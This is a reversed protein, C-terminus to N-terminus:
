RAGAVPRTVMAYALTGQVTPAGDVSAEVEFHWFSEFERVLRAELAIRDGAFVPKVFKVHTSALLGVRGARSRDLEADLPVDDGPRYGPDLRDRRDMNRLAELAVAEDRGAAAFGRVLLLVATLLGCSQALSELMLTGPMVPMGVYHGQLVPDNASVAREAHLTPEPASAFGVVRDVMLYPARLATLRSMVAPGFRLENRHRM